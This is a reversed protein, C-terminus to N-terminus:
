RARVIRVRAGAVHAGRWRADATLVRDIERGVAGTALILADTGNTFPVAAKVQVGVVAPWILMPTENGPRGTVAKMSMVPRDGDFVTLVAASIAVPSARFRSWLYGRGASVDTPFESM